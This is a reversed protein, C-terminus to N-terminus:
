RKYNNRFFISTHFFGKECEFFISGTQEVMGYYDHVNSINFTKKILNNFNKKTPM